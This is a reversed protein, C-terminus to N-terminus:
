RTVSVCITTMDYQAVGPQKTEFAVSGAAFTGLTVLMPNTASGFTINTTYNADPM